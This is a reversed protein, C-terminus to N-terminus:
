GPERAEQLAALSPYTSGEFVTVRGDPYQVGVCNSPADGDVTLAFCASFVEDGSKKEYTEIRWAIVPDDVDVGEAGFDIVLNHGPLAPIIAINIPKM